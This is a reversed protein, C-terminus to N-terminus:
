ETEDLPLEIQKRGPQRRGIKIKEKHKRLQQELKHVVSDLGVFLEGASESAVFDAAHEASVRVEVNIAVHSEFDVTVHIASVRDFFRKVKEVKEKIKDQTATGLQGHRASISLQM